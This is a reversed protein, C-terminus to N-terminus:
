PGVSAVHKNLINAIRNPNSSISNNDDPDKISSILKSNNSKRALISNIGEWTKKLNTLSDNFFKTYYQQKSIRTLTCIKNRCMKYKVRDDSVYLKNKVRISKRLGKIIWPKSFQKTKRNSVTKMPAHKNM